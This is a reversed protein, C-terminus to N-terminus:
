RMPTALVRVREGPRHRAVTDYYAETGDSLQVVYRYVAPGDGASVGVAKVITADAFTAPPLFFGLGNVLIAFIVVLIAILILLPSPRETPTPPAPTWLGDPVEEGEETEGDNVPDLEAL